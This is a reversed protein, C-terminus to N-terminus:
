GRVVFGEGSEDSEKLIAKLDDHLDTRDALLMSVYEKKTRKGGSTVMLWARSERPPIHLAWQTCGDYFPAIPRHSNLTTKCYIILLVIQRAM